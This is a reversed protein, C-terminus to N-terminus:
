DDIRFFVKASAPKQKYGRISVSVTNEGSKLLKDLNIERMKSSVRFRRIEGNAWVEVQSIKGQPVVVLTAKGKPTCFKQTYPKTSISEPITAIDVGTYYHHIIDFCSRKLQTGLYGAGYQSMGVGHGLGGGYADVSVLHGAGDKKLVFFVNGSPLLRDNITFARRINLEKSITFRCTTTVIEVTMAKGSIGRKLVRIDKLKGFNFDTSKALGKAKLQERLTKQLIRELDSAKWQVKWRFYKSANEWSDPYSIYFNRIDSERVMGRWKPNEPKGRLYPVKGHHTADFVNEYNESYGGSTSYYLALIPMQHYLIVLNQTAKIAEDSLPMETMAGFYVQCETSDVLDFRGKAEKSLHKDQLAYTRAALAQAKLAEVGFSIPMENPVVGRLYEEMNLINVLYFKGNEDPCVHFIGRYVAPKDKRVLDKIGILGGPCELVCGNPISFTGSEGSIVLAGQDNKCIHCGKRPEFSMMVQGTERSKLVMKETGYLTADSHIYNKLANDTIAVRILQAPLWCPALVM